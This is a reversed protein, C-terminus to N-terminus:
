ARQGVPDARAQRADVVDRVARHHRRLQRRDGGALRRSLERQDDARQHQRGHDGATARHVACPPQFTTAPLRQLEFKLPQVRGVADLPEHRRLGPM